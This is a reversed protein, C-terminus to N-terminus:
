AAAGARGAAARACEECFPVGDRAAQRLVAVMAAVDLAPAFTAAPAAAPAAPAARRPAPAPAPPPPAPPAPAAALRLLRPPADTRGSRGDARARRVIAVLEHDALRSLEVGPSLAAAQGRLLAIAGADVVASGVGTPDISPDDAAAGDPEMSLTSGAEDLWDDDIRLTM